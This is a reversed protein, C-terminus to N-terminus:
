SPRIRTDIYALAANKAEESIKKSIRGEKRMGFSFTATMLEVIIQFIDVGPVSSGAHEPLDTYDKMLRRLDDAVLSNSQTDTFSFQKADKRGLLLIAAAPQKNFYDAYIGSIGAWALRYNKREDPDFFTLVRQQLEEYYQTALADFIEYKSPFFHYLSTRTLGARKAIETPTIDELPMELVLQETVKLIEAVRQRSRKQTPQTKM